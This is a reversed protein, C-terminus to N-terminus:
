WDDRNDPPFRYQFRGGTFAVLNDLLDVFSNNGRGINGFTKYGQRDMSSGRAPPGAAVVPAPPGTPPPQLDKQPILHSFLGYPEVETPVGAYSYLAAM